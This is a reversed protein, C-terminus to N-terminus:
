PTRPTIILPAIESSFGSEFLETNHATLAFFWLGDADIDFTGETVNGMEKPSGMATYVGSTRGAYLRYGAIDPEPNANWGFRILGM